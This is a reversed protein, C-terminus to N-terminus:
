GRLLNDLTECWECGTCALFAAQRTRREVPLGVGTSVFPEEVVGDPHWELAARCDPCGLTAVAAQTLREMGPMIGCLPM